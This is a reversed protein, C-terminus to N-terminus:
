MMSNTAARGSTQQPVVNFAKWGDVEAWIEAPASAWTFTADYKQLVGAGFDFFVDLRLNVGSARSTAVTAGTRAWSVGADAPHTPTGTLLPPTGSSVAAYSFAFVVLDGSQSPANPHFGSGVSAGGLSGNAKAVQLDLALVTFFVPDQVQMSAVGTLEAIYWVAAGSTM